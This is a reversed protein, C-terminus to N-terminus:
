PIVHSLYITSFLLGFINGIVVILAQESDKEPIWKVSSYTSGQVWTALDKVEAM